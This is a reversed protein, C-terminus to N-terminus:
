RRRSLPPEDEFLMRPPVKDIGAGAILRDLSRALARRQAAPMARIAAVLRTQALEPARRVAARGKPTLALEVRRGDGRARRRSVLGGAVLRSVVTSVSSPDTMTREALEALSAAPAAALQSLVFLQAASAGTRQEARRTAIRLFRVLKRLSVLIRASDDTATM